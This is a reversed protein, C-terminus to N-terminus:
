LQFISHCKWKTLISSSNKENIIRFLDDPSIGVTDDFHVEGVDTKATSNSMPLPDINLLNAVLKSCYTSNPDDWKFSRDFPLNLYKIYVSTSLDDLHPLTIIAALNSSVANVSQYLHVGFVSSSLWGDKTKIASHYFIGDKEFSMVKGDKNIYQFFAVEVAASLQHGSFFLISTILLILTDLFLKHTFFKNMFAKM